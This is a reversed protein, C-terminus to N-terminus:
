RRGRPPGFLDLQASSSSSSPRLHPFMARVETQTAAQARRLAHTEGSRLALCPELIRAGCTPCQIGLVLALAIV